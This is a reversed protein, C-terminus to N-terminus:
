ACHEAGAWSPSPHSSANTGALISDIEACHPDIAPFAFVRPGTGSLSEWLQAATATVCVLPAPRGQARNGMAHPELALAERLDDTPMRMAWGKVTVYPGDATSSFAVTADIGDEFADDYRSLRLWIQGRFPGRLARAPRTHVEGYRDVTTLTVSSGAELVSELADLFSNTM